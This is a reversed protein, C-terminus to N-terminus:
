VRKPSDLTQWNVLCDICITLAINTRMPSKKAIANSVINIALAANPASRVGGRAVKTSRKPEQSGTAIHTHRGVDMFPQRKRDFEGDGPL